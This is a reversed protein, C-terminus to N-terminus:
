ASSETYPAPSIRVPELQFDAGCSRRHHQASRRMLQQVILPLVARDEIFLIWAFLCLQWSAFCKRAGSPGASSGAPCIEKHKDRTDRTGIIAGLNLAGVNKHYAKQYSKARVLHAAAGSNASCRGAAPQPPRVPARSITELSFLNKVELFKLLFFNLRITTPSGTSMSDLVSKHKPFSHITSDIFARRITWTDSICAAQASIPNRSDTFLETHM